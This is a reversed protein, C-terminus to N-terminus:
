LKLITYKVSTYIITNYINSYIFMLHHLRVLNSYVPLDIRDLATSVEIPMPLDIM